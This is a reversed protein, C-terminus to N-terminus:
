VIGEIVSIVAFVAAYAFAICFELVTFWKYFTDSFNKKKM